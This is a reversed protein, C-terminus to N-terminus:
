LWRSFIEFFEPFSKNISEEGKINIKYGKMKLMFAAMVLRHDYSCDFDFPMHELVVMGEGKIKLGGGDDSEQVSYGCQSLLSKIEKIRNTEKFALQPAGYIYSEGHAFVLLSCLVPFLDPSEKIEVKIPRLVDTKKVKFNELNVGMNKFLSLIQSDPQLSNEYKELNTIEVCGFLVGMSYMFAASSWDGEIQKLSTSLKTSSSIDIEGKGQGSDKLSLNLGFKNLFKISMKLYDSSKNINNLRLKLEKNLAAATILVATAVQSTKECSVEIEKEQWGQSEIKLSDESLEVRAGLSHLSRVLEDQPRKFLEKKGKLTWSGKKASLYVALFRLTTGGQGVYLSANKEKMYKLASELYLVDEANSHWALNMEPHENKLILYRNVLSKSSSIKGNYEFNM